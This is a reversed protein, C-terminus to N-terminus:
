YVDLFQVNEMSDTAYFVDMGLKAAQIMAIKVLEALPTKTTAYYFM